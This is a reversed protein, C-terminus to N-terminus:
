DYKGQVIKKLKDAYSIESNKDIYTVWSVYSPIEDPKVGILLPVVRLKNQEICRRIVSEFYLVRAMLM